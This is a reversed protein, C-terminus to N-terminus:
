LIEISEIEKEEGGKTRMFLKGDPLKLVCKGRTEEILKDLKEKFVKFDEMDAEIIEDTSADPHHPLQRDMMYKDLIEQKTKSM